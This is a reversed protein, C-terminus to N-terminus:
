VVDLVVQHSLDVFPLNPLDHLSMVRCIPTGKRPDYELQIWRQREERTSWWGRKMDFPIQREALRWSSPVPGGIGDPQVFKSLILNKEHLWAFVGDAARGCCSDPAVPILLGQEVFENWRTSSIQMPTEVGLIQVTFKKRQRAM